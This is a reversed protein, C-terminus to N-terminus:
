RPAEQRLVLRDGEGIATYGLPRLLTALRSGDAPSLGPGKVRLEGPTFDIGALSSGPPAVTGLAALMAELDRPSAAGTAQRLAAVEREMQVPADVVVKVQPFTTTLTSRIAERKQNLARQEKWAWANLGLFQALVLVGLGWRAARWRPTYLLNAWGGSFKKLARSRGSSALDFQALDWPSQAALWHRQATQQLAVKHQLLQEALAAVGPEAWVDAGPPVQLTSAPGLPWIVVGEADAQIAQPREPEGTIWLRTPEGPAVEPVIRSVPRQATELAQLADRLWARSCVAVWAPSGARAQPEMAFHLLEPEDLLRDELLGELVNRLRPTGATTGKPLEVRHWSLASAPVLAVTEAGAGAPQPLLAAVASGHRLDAEGDGALTYAYETAMGSAQLPLTVILTRM